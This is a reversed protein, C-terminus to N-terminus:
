SKVDSMDGCDPTMRLARDVVALLSIHDQATYISAGM